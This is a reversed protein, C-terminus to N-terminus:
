PSGIWGLESWVTRYQLLKDDTEQFYLFSELEGKWCKTLSSESSAPVRKYLTKGSFEM